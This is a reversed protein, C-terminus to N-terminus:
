ARDLTTEWGGARRGGKGGVRDLVLARHLESQEIQHGHALAALGRELDYAVGGVHHAEGVVHAEVHREVNGALVRAVTREAGSEGSM